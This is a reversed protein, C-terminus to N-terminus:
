ECDKAPKGKELIDKKKRKVRSYKQTHKINCKRMTEGRKRTIQEERAEKKLKEKQEQTVRTIQVRRIKNVQTRNKNYREKMEITIAVKSFENKKREGKSRDQTSVM